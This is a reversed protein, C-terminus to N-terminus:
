CKKLFELVNYEEKVVPAAPHLLNHLLNQAPSLNDDWAVMEEEKAAKKKREKVDLPHNKDYYRVGQCELHYAIRWDGLVCAEYNKLNNLCTPENVVSDLNYFCLSYCGADDVDLSYPCKSSDFKYARHRIDYPTKLGGVEVVLNNGKFSGFGAIISEGVSKTKRPLGNYGKLVECTSWPIDVYCKAYEQILYLLKPDAVSAKSLQEGEIGIIRRKAHLKSTELHFLLPLFASPDIESIFFM